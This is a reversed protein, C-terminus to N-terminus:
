AMNFGIVTFARRFDCDCPGDAVVCDPWRCGIGGDTTDARRDRTADPKAGVRSENAAPTCSMSSYREMDSATEVRTSRIHASRSSSRSALIEILRSAISPPSDSPLRTLRRCPLGLSSRPTIRPARLRTSRRHNQGDSITPLIEQGIIKWEHRHITTAVLLATM